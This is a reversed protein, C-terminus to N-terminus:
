VPKLVITVVGGALSTTVGTFDLGLRDGSALVSDAATASLVGTQVTNATGKLNFTSTLVNTGSGIATTSSAKKVAVSVASGDTGATSHVETVSVVKYARDCLFVNQDVADAAAPFPITLVVNSLPVWQTGTHIVAQDNTSDYRIQSKYGSGAPLTSAKRISSADSM